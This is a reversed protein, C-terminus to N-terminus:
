LTVHKKKLSGLFTILWTFGKEVEVMMDGGGMALTWSLISPKLLLIHLIMWDRGGPQWWSHALTGDPAFSRYFLLKEKNWRGDSLFSLLGVLWFCMMLFLFGRSPFTQCLLSWITALVIPAGFRSELEGHVNIYYDRPQSHSPAFHSRGSLGQLMPQEYEIVVSVRSCKLSQDCFCERGGTM